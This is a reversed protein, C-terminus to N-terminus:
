PMQMEHNGALSICLDRIYGKTRVEQVMLSRRRVWTRESLDDESRHPEVGEM